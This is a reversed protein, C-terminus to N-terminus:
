GWGPSSIKLFTIKKTFFFIQRGKFFLDQVGVGVGVWCYRTAGKEVLRFFFVWQFVKFAAKPHFYFFTFIFLIANEGSTEM